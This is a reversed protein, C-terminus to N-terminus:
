STSYPRSSDRTATTQMTAMLLSPLLMELMNELRALTIQDGRCNIPTESGGQVHSISDHLSLLPADPLYSM